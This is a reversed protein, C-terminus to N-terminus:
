SFLFFTNNEFRVLAVYGGYIEEYKDRCIWFANKIARGMIKREM